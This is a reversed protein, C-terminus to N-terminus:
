QSEETGLGGSCGNWRSRGVRRRATDHDRSYWVGIPLSGTRTFNEELLSVHFVLPDSWAIGCYLSTSISRERFRRGRAVCGAVGRLDVSSGRAAIFVM